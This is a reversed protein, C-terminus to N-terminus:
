SEVRHTVITFGEEPTPPVFHASFREFQEQTVAFPHEGSANRKQLRKLCVDDSADLLHLAHDADTQALIDRMWQRTEVTNAPFDLVVSVGAKLLELIHPGMVSQLKAACRLYDKGTAMQDAFLTGLWDDESIRVTKDRSALESALTSKGAAIKGCLMHLTPKMSTM